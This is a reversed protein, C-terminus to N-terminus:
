AFIFIQSIKKAVSHAPTHHNEPMGEIYRALTAEVISETFDTLM